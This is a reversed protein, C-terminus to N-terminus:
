SYIITPGQLLCDYWGSDTHILGLDRNGSRLPFTPIIAARSRMAAFGDPPTLKM